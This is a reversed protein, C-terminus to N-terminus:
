HLLTMSVFLKKAFCRAKIYLSSTKIILVRRPSLIPRLILLLQSHVPHISSKNNDIVNFVENFYLWIGSLIKM